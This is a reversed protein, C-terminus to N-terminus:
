LGRAADKRKNIGSIIRALNNKIDTDTVKSIQDKTDIVKNKINDDLKEFKNHSTILNLYPIFYKNFRNKEIINPNNIIM